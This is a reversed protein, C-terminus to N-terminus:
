RPGLKLGSATFIIFARKQIGALARAQALLWDDVDASLSEWAPSVLQVIM